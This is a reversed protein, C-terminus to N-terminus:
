HGDKNENQPDWIQVSEMSRGNERAYQVARTASRAGMLGRSSTDERELFEKVVGSVKNLIVFSYGSLKLQGAEEVGRAVIEFILAVIHPLLAEEDLCPDGFFRVLDDHVATRVDRLLTIGREHLGFYDFNLHMEEAAVGERVCTLLQVPSLEQQQSEMERVLQEIDTLPPRTRQAKKAVAMMASINGKNLAPSKDGVYRHQLTERVPTTTKLGRPGKKSVVTEQKVGQRHNAAFNIASAGLM